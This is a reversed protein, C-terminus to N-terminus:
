GEGRLAETADLARDSEASLMLMAAGTTVAAVGIGFELVENDGTFPLQAASKEGDPPKSVVGSVPEVPPKPATSHREAAGAPEISVITPVTWVIAGAVAAKRIFQRRGLAAAAATRNAAATLNAAPTPNRNPSDEV